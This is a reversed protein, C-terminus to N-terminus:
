FSYSLGAFVGLSETLQVDRGGADHRIRTYLPVRAMVNLTVHKDMGWTLSPRIALESRGTNPVALNGSFRGGPGVVDNGDLQDRGSFSCEVFLGVIASTQGLRAAPGVILTASPSTRYGYRNDYFPLDANLSGYLMWSELRYLGEVGVFPDATGTGLQLHSHRPVTVGLASADNHSLYSAATVENLGGTPLSVGVVFSFQFMKDALLFHKLGVRIDGLGKETEDRHHEDDNDVLVRSSRYPLDVFMETTDNVGYRTILDTRFVVFEADGHEAAEPSRAKLEGFSVYDDGYVLQTLPHYQTNLDFRFAGAVIPRDYISRGGV